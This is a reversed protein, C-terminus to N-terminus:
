DQYSHTWSLETRVANWIPFAQYFARMNRLNRAEFGKGFEASLKTALNKLQQKGYPARKKGQQEHEVILQGIHWYTQVMAHNIAHYVQNRSQQILQRIASLLAPETLEHVM